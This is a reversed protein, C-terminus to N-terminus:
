VDAPLCSWQVGVGPFGNTVTAGVPVEAGPRISFPPAPNISVSASSPTPFRCPISSSGCAALLLLELWVGLALLGARYNRKGSM